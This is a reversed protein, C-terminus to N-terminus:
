ATAPRADQPAAELSHQRLMGAVQAPPCRMIADLISLGPVFPGTGQRYEPLSPVLFWLACGHPAFQSAGYLSRGGPANVYVDAGERRCIDVVREAGHLSANGYVGSSRVIERRVDLYDLTLEVSRRAIEAIGRASADLSEELLRLGADLFPAGKYAQRLTEPLKRRWAPNRSDVGVANIPVFSSAGETPVTFYRAEGGQLYRNRNIWGSKIYNVDDYFVFKDVSQVLQFYGMYPFFYPQMIALKM